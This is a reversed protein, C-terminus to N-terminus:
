KKKSGGKKRGNKRGPKKRGKVLDVGFRAGVKRLYKKTKRISNKGANKKKAPKRKATAKRGNRKKAATKKARPRKAKANRKKAAPKRKPNKKAKSPKVWLAFSDKGHPLIKAAGLKQRKVDGAAIAALGRDSFTEWRQWGKGPNQKKARKATKRKAPKRGNRKKDRALAAMGERCEQCRMQGGQRALKVLRGRKGAAITESSPDHHPKGAVAGCMQCQAPNKAAGGALQSAFVTLRKGLRTALGRAKQLAEQPSAAAIAHKVGDSGSAFYKM